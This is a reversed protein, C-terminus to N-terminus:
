NNQYSTEEIPDKFYGKLFELIEDIREDEFLTASIEFIEDSIKHIKIKTMNGMRPHREFEMDKVDELNLTTKRLLNGKVIQNEGYKIFSTPIVLLSVFAVSLMLLGLLTGLFISGDGSIAEIITQIGFGLMLLGLILAGVISGKSPIIKSHM